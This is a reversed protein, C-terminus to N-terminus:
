QQNNIMDVPALTRQKKHRWYLYLFVGLTTVPIHLVAVLPLWIAQGAPLGKAVQYIFFGHIVALMYVPVIMVIGMQPLMWMIFFILMTLWFTIIWLRVNRASIKRLAAPSGTARRRLYMTLFGLFLVICTPVAVAFTALMAGLGCGGEFSSGFWACPMTVLAVMALAATIAVALIFLGFIALWSAPAPRSTKSDNDSM